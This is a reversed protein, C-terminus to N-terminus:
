VTTLVFSLEESAEATWRPAQLWRQLRHRQEGM